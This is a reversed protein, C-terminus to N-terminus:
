RGGDAAPRGKSELRVLIIERDSAETPQRVSIRYNELNTNRLEKKLGELSQAADIWFDFRGRQVEREVIGNVKAIKSVAEKLETVASHNPPDLVRLTLYSESSVEALYRSGGRMLVDHTLKDILESVSENVRENKATLAREGAAMQISSKGTALVLNKSREYLAAEMQLQTGEVISEDDDSQVFKTEVFLVIDADQKLAVARLSAASNLDLSDLHDQYSSIRPLVQLKRRGAKEKVEAEIRSILLEENEHYSTGRWPAGGRFGKVVLQIKVPSKKFESNNLVLIAQLARLDIMANLTVQGKPGGGVVKYSSVYQSSHPLVENDVVSQQIHSDYNLYKKAALRLALALADAVSKESVTITVSKAEAGMAPTPPGAIQLSAILVSTWFFRQNIWHKFM